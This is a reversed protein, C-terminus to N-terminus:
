GPCVPIGRNNAYGFFDGVILFYASFVMDVIVDLEYHLRKRYEELDQDSLRPRSHRIEPLRKEFGEMATKRFQTEISEGNPLPFVPFHYEGLPISLSCIDAIRVTNELAEPVHAFERFMEEPSKFYLQDTRFKMRKEDLINKGTQICLLIDHARADSRKLYHCDNTAVLPLGTEKALAMIKENM